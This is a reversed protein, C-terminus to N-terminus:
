TQLLFYACIEQKRRIKFVSGIAEEYNHFEEGTVNLVWALRM